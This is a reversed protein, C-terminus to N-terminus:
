KEIRDGVGAALESFTGCWDDDRHMKAIGCQCRFAVEAGTLEAGAFRFRWCSVDVHQDGMVISALVCRREGVASNAGGAKLVGNVQGGVVRRIPEPLDAETRVFDWWRRSASRGHGGLPVRGGLLVQLYVNISLDRPPAEGCAERLFQGIKTISVQQAPAMEEGHGLLFVTGRSDLGLYEYMGDLEPLAGGQGDPAAELEANTTLLMQVIRAKCAPLRAISRCTEFRERGAFEAERLAHHIEECGPAGAEDSEPFTWMTATITVALVPAVLGRTIYGLIEM